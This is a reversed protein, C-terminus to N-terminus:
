KPANESSLSKENLGGAARGAVLPAIDTLREIDHPASRGIRRIRLAHLGARRAGEIDEAESDGVHLVEGPELGLAHLAKQFIQQDPKHAGIASSVIIPDFHRSLELTDLLPGLRDDWNSLVATRIGRQALQELAPLVDDFIRWAARETFRNYIADFLSPSVDGFGAFSQQVIEFWEHREYAFKTRGKWARAFGANLGEAPCTLGFRQAMESYVAGVSPWPEILTGGADFTVARITM